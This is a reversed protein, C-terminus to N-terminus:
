YVEKYRVFVDVLNQEEKESKKRELYAFISKRGVGVKGTMQVTFHMSQTTIFEVPLSIDNYGAMRNRYWDSESLFDWHMPEQRYEVVSEAWGEATDQSVSPSVLAKLVM